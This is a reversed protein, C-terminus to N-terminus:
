MVVEYSRPNKLFMKNGEWKPVPVNKLGRVEEQLIRYCHRNLHRWWRDMNVTDDYNPIELKGLEHTESFKKLEDTSDWYGDLKEQLETFRKEYGALSADLDHAEQILNNLHKYLETLGDLIPKLDPDELSLHDFHNMALQPAAKPAGYDRSGWHVPTPNGPDSDPSASM